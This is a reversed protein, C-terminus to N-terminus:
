NLSLNEHTEDKEPFFRKLYIQLMMITLKLQFNSSIIIQITLIRHRHQSKEMTSRFNGKKLFNPGVYQFLKLQYITDISIQIDLTFGHHEPKGNEASFVKKPCIQVWITQKFHFKTGLSIRIHM